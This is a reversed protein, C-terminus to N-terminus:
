QAGCGSFEDSTQELWELEGAWLRRAAADREFLANTKELVLTFPSGTRRTTHSVPLDLFDILGHIHKRKDKALPWELRQRNPDRLFQALRACLACRCAPATQISWDDNAREPAALREAFTQRCHRHLPQLGLQPLTDPKHNQCAARLVGLPLQVPVNNAEDTLFDIVQRSLGDQNAIRGSEIIGLLAASVRPLARAQERTSAQKFIGTAHQYVWALRDEGLWGALAPGDAKNRACLARCVAPLTSSLWQLQKDPPEFRTRESMWLRFLKHCWAVGYLGLADALRPASRKSVIHLSFPKLLAAAVTAQELEVAVRLTGYLLPGPKEARAAVDSWFPLLRRAQDVAQSREGTELTRAIEAIAWPPSAKARIIFNRERPWMVVAARHYWRDVTNGWNGMFGEHESEFPEFDASPRTYCLEGPRVGASMSKPRGGGAAIWHRLEVDSDILEVLEPDGSDDYSEDEDDDDWGWGRDRYGSDDDECAWTEHVDALALFIECDLQRAVERLAMARMADANKLRTWALGRPTYQHDLLYVLRDPPESKRNSSGRPSASSDFFDRIQRALAKIQDAAIDAAEAKGKVMLNYTLVVRHGQKIPRVEHRCDAYFAIFTLKEESGVVRLKEGHHEIVFSGGSFRSPLNVVLTAVMDDVKESDQHPVFFQGPTYVLMNHLSAELHCGDPLGLDGRIRDLMPVLTKKWRRQDISVRSKAIEWTDRVSTDLRTQDKFGHRAPRAVACLKRATTAAVPLRVRGVGKVELNLDDAAVVHRTAYSGAMGIRELVQSIKELASKM